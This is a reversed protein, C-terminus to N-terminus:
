NWKSLNRRSKSTLYGARGSRKGAAKIGYDYFLEDSFKLEDKSMAVPKSPSMQISAFPRGIFPASFEARKLSEYVKVHADHRGLRDMAQDDQSIYHVGAEPPESFPANYISNKIIM